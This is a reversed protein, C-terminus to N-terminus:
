GRQTKPASETKRKNRTGIKGAEKLAAVCKVAEEASMGNKVRYKLSGPPLGTKDAIQTLTLREGKYEFFVNRRTNNAQIKQTVWRCNEPEYNGNVDVRDISLGEKYGTGMAWECFVEFSNTWEECVSIGRDGYWKYARDTKRGCRGKMGMWVGYLKTKSQGHKFYSLACRAAKKCGCSHTTGIRLQGGQITKETGCDCRCKWHGAGAYGLVTWAGFRKGTIDDRPHKKAESQLRKTDCGCSLSHFSKLADTRVARITGCDCRCLWNKKDYKEVLTWKGFRDGEHLLNPRGM